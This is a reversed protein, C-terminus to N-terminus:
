GINQYMSLRGAENNILDMDKDVGFSNSEHANAWVEARSIGYDISNLGRFNAVMLANWYAHRFADGIGLYLESQPYYNEAENLATVATSSYKTFEAPHKQALAVEASTLAPFGPISYDYKKISGNNLAVADKIKQAAIINLSEETYTNNAVLEELEKSINSLVNPDVNLVEEETLYTINSELTNTNVEAAIGSFQSDPSDKYSYPQVETSNIESASTPISTFIANSMLLTTVLLATKKM